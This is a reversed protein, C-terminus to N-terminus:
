SPSFPLEIQDSKEMLAIHGFTDTGIARMSEEHRVRSMALIFICQEFEFHWRQRGYKQAIEIKRIERTTIASPSTTERFYIGM